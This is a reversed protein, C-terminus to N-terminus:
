IYYKCIEWGKTTFLYHMLEASSSVYLKSFIHNLHSKCTSEKIKLENCILYKKGKYKMFLKCLDIEKPTLKNLKESNM